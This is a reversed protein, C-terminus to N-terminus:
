VVLCKDLKLKSVPINDTLPTKPGAYKQTVTKFGEQM